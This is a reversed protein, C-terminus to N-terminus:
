VRRARLIKSVGLLILLVAVIGGFEERDPLLFPQALGALIYLIGKLLYVGRM